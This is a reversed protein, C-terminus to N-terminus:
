YDVLNWMRLIRARAQNWQLAWKKAPVSSLNKWQYFDTDRGSAMITMRITGKTKGTAKIIDDLSDGNDYMRLIQVTGTSYAYLDRKSM